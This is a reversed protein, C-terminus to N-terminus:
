KKRYWQGDADQLWLGPRTLEAIRLARQQGVEDASQGTRRAVLVYLERRDANEASVLQQQASTLSVRAELYGRNTEGISGQAKLADIQPLREKVRAAADQAALPNVMFLGFICLALLYFFNRRTTM